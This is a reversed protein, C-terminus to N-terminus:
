PTSLFIAAGNMTGAALDDFGDRNFDGVCLQLSASSPALTGGNQFGSSRALFIAIDGSADSNGFALDLKGDHDFDGAAIGSSFRNAQGLQLVQPATFGLTTGYSITVSGDMHVAVVDSKGDRDLDFAEEHAIASGPLVVDQSYAVTGSGNGLYLKLTSSSRSAALVDQHGDGNFDGAIAQLMDQGFAPENQVETHSPMETIVFGGPGTALQSDYWASVLDKTGDQNFDAAALYIYYDRGSGWYSQTYQLNGTGTLLSGDLPGQGDWARGAVDLIGDRNFDAIVTQWPLSSRFQGSVAFSGTPSGKAVTINAIGGADDAQSIVLDLAGDGDLDATAPFGGSAPLALEQALTLKVGGTSTAPEKRLEIRVYRSGTNPGLEFRYHQGAQLAIRVGRRLKGCETSPLYQSCAESAPGGRDLLSRRPINPTGLYLEFVGATAPTYEFAGAYTSNGSSPLDLLYVQDLAIAPVSSATIPAAALPTATGDAATCAAAQETLQGSTCAPPSEIRSQVFLRVYSYSAAPGLALTYTHGADLAYSTVHRLTSCETPAISSQCGSNIPTGDDRTITLPVATSGLYVDYTASQAIALQLSARGNTLHVGYARVDAVITAGSSVSTPSGAKVCASPLSGPAGIDCTLAEDSSSTASAACGVLFLLATVRM